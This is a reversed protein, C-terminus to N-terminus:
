QLQIIHLFSFSVNSEIQGWISATSNKHWLENLTFEVIGPKTTATVFVVIVTTQTILIIILVLSYKYFFFSHFINFM